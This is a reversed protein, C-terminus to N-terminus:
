GGTKADHLAEGIVQSRLYNRPDGKPGRPPLSVSEITSLVGQMKDQYEPAAAAVGPGFRGAGIAIAKRQWKQTGAKQVGSGFAGRSIAAQVGANYNEESNATQTAWDAKPSKVGAAYDPAAQAARRKWKDVVLAINKTAPMIPYYFM